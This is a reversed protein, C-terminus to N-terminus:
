PKPNLAVFAYFLNGFRKESIHQRFSRHPNVFYPKPNLTEPKLTQPKPNKWNLLLGPWGALGALGLELGRWGGPLCGLGVSGLGSQMYGLPSERHVHHGQGGSQNCLQLRPCTEFQSDMPYDLQLPM